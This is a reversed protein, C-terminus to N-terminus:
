QSRKAINKYKPSRPKSFFVITVVEFFFFFFFFVKAGFYLKHESLFVANLLIIYSLFNSYM